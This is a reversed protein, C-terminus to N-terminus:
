KRYTVHDTLQSSSDSQNFTSKILTYAEVGVFLSLMIMAFPPLIVTFVSTKAGIASLIKQTGFTLTVVLVCGATLFAAYYVFNLYFYDFLPDVYALGISLISIGSGTLCFATKKMTKM